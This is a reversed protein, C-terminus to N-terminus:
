KIFDKMTLKYNKKLNKNIIKGVVKKYDSALIGDGPKLFAICELTLKSGKKIDKSTYISKQFILRMKKLYNLNDKNLTTSNILYAEKLEKCFIKFDQPEMSHKADSGYMKKSFTIHKEIVNCGKAIASISAAYGETHDSLGIDCNYKKLEELVNIGVNRPVCPYQSTCQFITLKKKNKKFIKIADNIEKWNSMGTSLFIRKQTRSIFNLMPFNSLEGSAIKFGDIDIKNLKKAAQISFPSVIFKLKLKNALKKLKNLQEISFSTRKFYQFRSEGKFYPPNPADILTENEPDHLQFKVASAGCEAAVEVLKCANGISGDHVSGIEAIILLKKFSYM